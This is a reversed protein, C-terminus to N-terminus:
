GRESNFLVSVQGAHGDCRALAREIEAQSREPFRRMLNSVKEDATSARRGGAPSADHRWQPSIRSALTDWEDHQAGAQGGAHRPPPTGGQRQISRLLQSAAGAHGEHLELARVIRDHGVDPFRQMLNHVKQDAHSPRRAVAVGAGAGRAAGASALAAVGEALLARQEEAAPRRPGGRGCPLCGCPLCGRRATRRAPRREESIAVITKGFVTSGAPMFNSAIKARAEDLRLRVTGIEPGASSQEPGACEFLEGQYWDGLRRLQGSVQKGSSHTEVFCFGGGPEARLHYRSQEGYM